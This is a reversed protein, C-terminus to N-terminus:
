LGVIRNYAALATAVRPSPRAPDGLGFEAQLAPKNESIYDIARDLNALRNPLFNNTSILLEASRSFNASFEDITKIVGQPNAGFVADLRATDLSALNTRQDILLGIDRMGHFGDGAGNFINEISQELAHLSVEAAQTGALLGDRKVTGDFRQIWENYQGVFVQLQAKVADKDTTHDITSLTDGANKLNGVASSMESLESFQARYTVDSRNIISMMNYASEPDFLSLQRGTPSLGQLGGTESQLGSADTLFDLSSTGSSGSFVSGLLSTVSQAQMEALRLTLSSSFDPDKGAIDSALSRPTTSTGSNFLGLLTSAIGLSTM